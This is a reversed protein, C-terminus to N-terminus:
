ARRATVAALIGVELRRDVTVVEKRRSHVVLRFGPLLAVRLLEEAELPHLALSPHVAVAPDCPCLGIEDWADTDVFAAPDSVM